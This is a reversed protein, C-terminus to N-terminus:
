AGPATAPVVGSPVLAEYASTVQNPHVDRKRKTGNAKQKPYDGYYQWAIRPRSRKRPIM